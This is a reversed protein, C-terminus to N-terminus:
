LNEQKCLKFMEQYLISWGSWDGYESLSENHWLPIFAGGVAKVERILRRLEQLAEPVDLKMYNKLTADMVCFPYVRLNTRVNTKLDFFYFPSSTGARFGTHSAYGMTYDETIGAKILSEYTHPIRMRLFHQRSRFVREGTIGELIEKESAIREAVSGSSYSPHIGVFAEQSLSRILQRFPKNGPNINIDDVAPRYKGLLFFYIPKLGYQEHIKKFAAYQDFPDPSKKLLIKWKEKFSPLDLRILSKLFSCKIRIWGKHRLMYAQDIDISPQIRFTPYYAKLSPCHECLMTIFARAWIEAVPQKLFGERFALSQGAEFRGHKDAQYPLYEEYRSLLYFAASFLDFPFFSGPPCLFFARTQEFDSVRIDQQRIDEEDLLGHALQYLEGSVPQRTYAFRPGVYERFYQFDETLEFDIGWLETLLHTFIYEKRTTIRETFILLNSPLSM